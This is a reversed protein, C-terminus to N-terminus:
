GPIARRSRWSFAIVSAVICFLGVYVARFWLFQGGTGEFTAIFGFCTFALLPIGTVTTLLKNAATNQKLSLVAFMGFATLVFLAFGIIVPSM